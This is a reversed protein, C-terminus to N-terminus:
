RGGQRAQRSVSWGVLVVLAPLVLNLAMLDPYASWGTTTVEVVHAVLGTLGGVVASRYDRREWRWLLAAYLVIGTLPGV